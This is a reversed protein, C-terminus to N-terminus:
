PPGPDGSPRIHAALDGVGDKKALLEVYAWDMESGYREVALTAEALAEPRRWQRAEVLRKVVLYEIAALRLPGFKTSVLRTLRRSGSDYKGVIQVLPRFNPSTWYVGESRFGWKRLTAVVRDRDAAVLDVDDSAYDGQTYVELASGGVLTMGETGLGSESALMAGFARIQRYPFEEGRIADRFEDRDV